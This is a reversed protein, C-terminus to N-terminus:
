AARGAHIAVATKLQFYIDRARPSLHKLAEPDSPQIPAQATNGEAAVVAKIQEIQDALLQHLGTIANEMQDFRRMTEQSLLFLQSELGRLKRETANNGEVRTFLRVLWGIILKQAWRYRRIAADLGPLNAAYDRGEDSRRLQGLIQIKPVGTRLRALYYSLGEEDPDRGLLTQYACHIFAQDHRALLEDLTSAIAPGNLNITQASHPMILEMAAQSTPQVEASQSESTTTEIVPPPEVPEVSSFSHGSGKRPAIFSAIKRLPATMRWSLSAHTIALNKEMEAITQRLQLCTQISRNLEDQKTTLEFGHQQAQLEQAHNLAQIENQLGANERELILLERQGAIL